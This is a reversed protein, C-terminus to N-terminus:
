IVHKYFLALAIKDKDIGFKESLPKAVTDTGLMVEQKSTKDFGELKFPVDESDFCWFQGDIVKIIVVRDLFYGTEEYDKEVVNRYEELPIPLDVLIYARRKPHHSREIAYKSNGEPRVTYHHFESSRSRIQNPYIPM